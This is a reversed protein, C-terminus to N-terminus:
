HALLGFKKKEKILGRRTEIGLRSPGDYCEEAFECVTSLGNQARLNQIHRITNENQVQNANVLRRSLKELQKIFKEEKALTALGDVKTVNSVLRRRHQFIELTISGWGTILIGVRLDKTPEPM